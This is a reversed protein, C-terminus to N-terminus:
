RLYITFTRGNITVTALNDCEGNGFDLLRVPRGEPTIEVTGSVFYRCSLERRLPEIIVKTFTIGSPRTGTATGRILYVDDRIRPTEEGEIWERTKDSSWNLTGENNAFIIYGNVHITFVMHGEENYGNNEIVKICNVQNDNVYYNDTTITIVTGPKHYRGTFSVHIMGRRYRGDNCLCNTDGFDITMVHPVAITDITVIACQGLIGDGETSKLGGTQLSFGEDSITQIDDYWSESIAYDKAESLDKDDQDDNKNCGTFFYGAILFLLITTYFGTNKM